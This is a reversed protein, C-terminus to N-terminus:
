YKQETKDKELGEVKSTPMYSYSYKYHIVFDPFKSFTLKRNTKDTM